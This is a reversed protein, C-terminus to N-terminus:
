YDLIRQDPRDIRGLGLCLRNRDEALADNGNSRDLMKLSPASWMRAHDIGPALTQKWTEVICVNVEHIASRLEVINLQIVAGARLLKSAANAFAACLSRFAIPHQAAIPILGLPIGCHQGGFLQDIRDRWFSRDGHITVVAM